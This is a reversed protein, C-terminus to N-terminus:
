QKTDMTIETVHENKWGGVQMNIWDGIGKLDNM